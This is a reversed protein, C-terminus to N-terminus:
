LRQTIGVTGLEAPVLVRDDDAVGVGEDLSEGLSDRCGPRQIRALDPIDEVAASEDGLSGGLTVEGEIVM